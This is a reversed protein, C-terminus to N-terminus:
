DEHSHAPALEEFDSLDVKGMSCWSGDDVCGNCELELTAHAIRFPGSISRKVTTAVQQAQELTPEGELILHASLANINSSLSWVHLDHVNEVGEVNKMSRTLEELDLNKPTSEMLVSLTKRLLNVAQWSILVGIALSVAPDLWFNGHTALMVSGAVAVGASSVADGAMHLLAARMNLDEQAERLLTAALLNIVTAIAAVVVVILGEVPVPHMLRKIAEFGIFATVLLISAANAQATLISARHYGFSRKRDPSKTVMRVAFLALGIAAVDTLNHGADAILGLSHAAFGAVVQVVVIILNLALTIRLRLPRSSTRNAKM